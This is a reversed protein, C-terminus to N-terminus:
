AVYMERGRQPSALVQSPLSNRGNQESRQLSISRPAQALSSYLNGVLHGEILSAVGLLHNRPSVQKVQWLLILNSKM